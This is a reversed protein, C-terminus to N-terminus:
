APYQEAAQERAGSPPQDRGRTRRILWWGLLGAAAILPLFPLVAGLVVSFGGLVGLLTSWGSKLGAVFGSDQAVPEPGAAGTTVATLSLSITSLAVQGRLAAQQQQLSELNAEREALESEISIVDAIDTASALLARVRAVSATMSDVRSNVDAVQGTVDQSTETRNTLEGLGTLKDVAADYQEVPVRVTLSLQSGGGDASSQFGGAATAISRAGTGAQAIAAARAAANAERDAQQDDTTPVPEVALRITLDATKVVKSGDVPATILQDPPAAPQDAAQGTGGAAASSTSAAAPAGASDREGAPDGGSSSAGSTCGALGVMAAAAVVWIVAIKGRIRPGRVARM